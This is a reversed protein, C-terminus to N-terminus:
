YAGRGFRGQTKVHSCVPLKEKLYKTYKNPSRPLATLEGAHDPASGWRFDFKICKLRLMQCRTADFKSIKGLILLGCDVCKEVQTKTLKANV